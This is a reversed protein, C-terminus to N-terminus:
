LPRARVRRLELKGQRAALAPTGRLPTYMYKGWLNASPVNLVPMENLYVRVTWGRFVARLDNWEGVPLSAPMMTSAAGLLAGSAERGPARGTDDGMVIELPPHKPDNDLRALWVAQAGVEVRYELRVEYDGLAETSRLIPMGEEVVLSEADNGGEAPGPGLPISAFGEEPEERIRVNRFEVPAGHDQLGIFGRPCRDSLRIGPVLGENVAPDDLDFDHLAQDNLIVKMHRGLLAVELANWEGDGSSAAVAPAKAAYLSGTSERSPPKGHDGMIQLEMGLASHRGSLPARVFVGSNGGKGIKYDLRLTFDEYIRRTFLTGGAVRRIVGDSCEWAGPKPLRWASLEADASLPVFGEEVPPAPQALPLLLLATLM